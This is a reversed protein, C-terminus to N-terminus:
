QKTENLGDAMAVAQDLSDCKVLEASEILGLVLAAIKRGGSCSDCDCTGADGQFLETLNHKIALIKVYSLMLEKTDPIPNVNAIFSSNVKPM